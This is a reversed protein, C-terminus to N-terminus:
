VYCMSSPNSISISAKVWWLPILVWRITKRHWSSRSSILKGVSCDSKWVPAGLSTRIRLLHTRTALAGIIRGILNRKNMPPPKWLASFCCFSISEILCRGMASPWLLHRHLVSVCVYHMYSRGWGHLLRRTEGKPCYSKYSTQFSWHHFATMWVHLPGFNLLCVRCPIPWDSSKNLSVRSALPESFKIAM